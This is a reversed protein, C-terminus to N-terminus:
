QNLKLVMQQFQTPSFKAPSHFRPATDGTHQPDFRLTQEVGSLGSRLQKAKAATEPNMELERLVADLELYQVAAQHWDVPPSDKLENLISRLVTTPDLQTTSLEIAKAHQIKALTQAVAQVDAPQSLPSLKQLRAKNGRLEVQSTSHWSNWVPLGDSIHLPSKTTDRPPLKYENISLSQHCAFCDYDALEPWPVSRDQLHASARQAALEAAFALNISRGVARTRLPSENFKQEVASTVDWHKPLNENYLLLDFRLAPHGAAILDHNMDRVMGNETRSGIHCRVCTQARGMVSETDIMGTEPEFREPGQWSTQLHADLWQSAAGHCAECSVGAILIAEDLPGSEACQQPTPTAHCSICRQRLVTDFIEPSDAAQPNLRVVIARSDADRLLLGAGAHPDHALWSSLSANWAPGQGVVGGHCTSTACSVNGIFTPEAGMAMGGSIAVAVFAGMWRAPMM